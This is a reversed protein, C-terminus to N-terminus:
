QTQRKKTVFSEFGVFGRGQRRAVAQRRFSGTPTSGIYHYLNQKDQRNQSM